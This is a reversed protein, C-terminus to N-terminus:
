DLLALADERIAVLVNVRNGRESLRDLGAAFEDSAERHYLFFEEFQDLILLLDVGHARRLDLIWEVVDHGAEPM